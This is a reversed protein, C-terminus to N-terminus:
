HASSTTDEKYWEKLYKSVHEASERGWASCDRSQLRKEYSIHELERMMRM